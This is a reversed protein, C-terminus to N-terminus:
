LGDDCHRLLKVLEVPSNSIETLKLSFSPFRTSVQDSLASGENFLPDISIRDVPQTHDGFFSLLLFVLKFILIPPLSTVRRGGSVSPVVMNVVTGM